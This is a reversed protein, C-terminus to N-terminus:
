KLRFQGPELEFNKEKKGSKPQAKETSRSMNPLTINLKPRRIKPLKIEDPLLGSKVLVALVVFVTIIVVGLIIYRNQKAWEIDIKPFTFFTKNTDNDTNNTTLNNTNNTDNDSVCPGCDTQCSSCNEGASQNCVTNGCSEVYPPAAVTSIAFKSL